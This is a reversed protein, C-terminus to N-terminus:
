APLGGGCDQPRWGYRGAGGTLPFGQATFDGVPPSLPVRGAFWPKVTHHNSSAVAIVQGSSLARVHDNVLATTLNGAAPLLIAALVIAAALGSAGVGSAAGLWFQRQAPRATPLPVIKRSEDDLSRAIRARLSDPAKLRAASGRVAESAEVAAAVLAQCHECTEIHREADASADADLEGDLYASTRDFEACTM